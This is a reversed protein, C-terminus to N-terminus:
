RSSYFIHNGIQITVEMHRNWLPNVDISHYHNIRGMDNGGLREDRANRAAKMCEIFSDHNKIDDPLGDNFWSFQYPEQVIEKVSKKRQLARTLIVHAIARQGESPEGRGEHYICIALWYLSECYLTM